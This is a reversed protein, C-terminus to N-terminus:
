QGRRRFLRIQLVSVTQGDAEVRFVVALPAVFTIRRGQTRSEGEHTPSRRLNQDVIHSAATIAHRTGPDAQSWLNALEDLARREWRVRFM